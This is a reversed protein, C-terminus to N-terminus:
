PRQRRKTTASFATTVLLGSPTTRTAGEADPLLEYGMEDIVDVPVGLSIMKEKYAALTENYVKAGRSITFHMEDIGQDTVKVAAATENLVRMVANTDLEMASAVQEIKAETGEAEAEYGDLRKALM